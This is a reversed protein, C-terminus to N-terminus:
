KVRLIKENAEKLADVFIKAEDLTNYRSFSLRIASDADERKIGMARLVPSSEGRSCASGSSVYIGKSELFHLMIESRIGRCSFNLICSVSDEPSNIRAGDLKKIESTLYSKIEAMLKEDKDLSAYAKEGALSLMSALPVSETGSRMKGQQGGGYLIPKIKSGKKIYLAGIGKPAHIKHGSISLFDIHMKSLKIRLKGYGQVFDCHTQCLPFDRKIRSFVREVPLISGVENNVYMMSALVTKDNIASLFEEEDVSGNENSPVVVLEFGMEELKKMPELVAPHELATTVIRNGRKRLALASGFIALNNSETGCSTFIIEEESAGITKALTQKAKNFIKEAEFGKQHLSSPNGYEKTMIELGHRAVEDDTQTTASNDFYIEMKNRWIRNQDLKLEIKKNYIIKKARALINVYYFSSHSLIYAM